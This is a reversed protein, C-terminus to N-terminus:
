SQDKGMRQMAVRWLDHRRWGIWLLMMGLVGLLAWTEPEPTTPVQGGVAFKSVGQPLPLPQKVVQSKGSVNRVVQDVAVFSTYTTLLNYRLGLDTMDKVRQDDPQVANYDGLTAIRHRAWLYRLAAHTPTPKVHSVDITQTYAQDGQWGNLTLTGHPMGHWKGVVVVPRD